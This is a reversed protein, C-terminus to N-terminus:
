FGLIKRKYREDLFKEIWRKAFSLRSSDNLFSDRILSKMYDLNTIFKRSIVRKISKWIFEIPNLDPSYPPLYILDIECDEACQVTDEAKHSSFNDLIVIIRKEPNKAQVERLFECVDEKKSHERFEIVSNGNLAYFGFTNARLKTTNKYITPREGSFSWLRRRM